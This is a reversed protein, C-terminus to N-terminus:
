LDPPNTVLHSISSLTLSESSPSILHATPVPLTTVFSTGFGQCKSGSLLSPNHTYSDGNECIACAWAVCSILNPDSGLEM